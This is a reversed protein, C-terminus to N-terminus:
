AREVRVRQAHAALAELDRADSTLVTGGPEAHAVVIADVASGRRARARLFAARRAVSVQLEETIDCSKLFRNAAADRGVHGQLCEVLVVAPVIPPWLGEDRLARLLAAMERTREALRSVAGSDLILV